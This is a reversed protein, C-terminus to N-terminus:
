DEAAGVIGQDGIEEGESEWRTHTYDVLGRGSSARQRGVQVAVGFIVARLASPALEERGSKQTLRQRLDFFDPSVLNREYLCSNERLAIRLSNITSSAM